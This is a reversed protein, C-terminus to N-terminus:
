SQQETSKETKAPAPHAPEDDLVESTAKKFERLSEGVSRALEPLRRAGFLVVIIVIIPLAEQWGFYMQIVESM